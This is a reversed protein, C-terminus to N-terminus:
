VIPAPDKGPTFRGPRPTSWGGGDLALTLSLTTSYRMEEEPGAHGTRPHLKSEGTNVYCVTVLRYTGLTSSHEMERQRAKMDWKIYVYIFIFIFPM